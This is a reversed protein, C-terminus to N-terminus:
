KEGMAAKNIGSQQLGLIVRRLRYVEKMLKVATAYYFHAPTGLEPLTYDLGWQCDMVVSAATSDPESYEDTYGLYDRHTRTDVCKVGERNVVKM